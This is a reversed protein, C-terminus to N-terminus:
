SDRFDNEKDKTKNKAENIFRENLVYLVTFSLVVGAIIIAYMDRLIDVTIMFIFDFFMFITETM